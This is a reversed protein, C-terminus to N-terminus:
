PWSHAEEPMPTHDISFIGRILYNVLVILFALFPYKFQIMISTSSTGAYSAEHKNRTREISRYAELKGQSGQANISTM